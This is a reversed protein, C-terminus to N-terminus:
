ETAGTLDPACGSVREWHRALVAAFENRAFDLHVSPLSSPRAVGDHFEFWSVAVLGCTMPASAAAAGPAGSQGVVLALSRFRDRQENLTGTKAMVM